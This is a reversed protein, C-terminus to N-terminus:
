PAGAMARLARVSSACLEHPVSPASVLALAQGLLAAEDLQVAGAPLVDAYLWVAASEVSPPLLGARDAVASLAGVVALELAEESFRAELLQEAAEFRRTRRRVRTDGARRAREQRLADGDPAPDEPSPPLDPAGVSPDSATIEVPPVPAAPEPEVGDPDDEATATEVPDSATAGQTGEDEGVPPSPESDPDLTALAAQLTGGGLAVVDEDSEEGVSAAFLESKGKLLTGVSTEYSNEAVLLVVHAPESQGLRHIRAIRQELVAPNWPLDLNILLSACQLNLGVGGADTSLFVQMRVDTEFRRILDGRKGSPVGGHLRLVGLGLVRAVDAAAATMREWESFVVVKRDTGVVLEDLLRRLEDLKPSGVTEKDVLGLSDCVMRARQLSQLLRLKESPTLPRRQAIAATRRATDVADDHVDRQAGTMPVDLQQQIREPLQDRVLRRDRRLLVPSLRRRLEGLNRYGLVKGRDDLVHFDAHFRWLPGLIRPDVVQMLSYLDELRNELPTGTLVFAFRTRLRKVLDATRTRWNKIRQAEDLVLIDPALSAQVQEHDRLLLEYNAITFTARRQWQAKRDLASGQIVQVDHGTFREIERAWQSKLSAPCLVLARAAAGHHLLHHSASIAQLTKGLGMDDALLARGNGVLFAVGEVQYPYLTARLGPLRGEARRVTARLEAARARHREEDALLRAHDLAEDAVLVDDRGELAGGLSLLDDPLRGVFRGDADFWASLLEGLEPNTPGRELRVTPGHESATDLGVIAVRPPRSALREYKKSARKRLRALVAEVHKCTGLRNTAFDPCGCHNLTSGLSRIQVRWTRARRGHLAESSAHWTGFWRDGAVHRVQVHEAAAAQRELLAREEMRAWGTDSLGSRASAAVLTAVAHKCVPEGDFPCDCDIDVEGDELEVRVRYPQRPRSGEVLAEAWDAGWSLDLVRDERFYAIGRRLVPKSTIGQLDELDITFDVSEPPPATPASRDHPQAAPQM